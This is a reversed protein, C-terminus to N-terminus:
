IVRIMVVKDNSLFLLIEIFFDRNFLMSVFTGAGNEFLVWRASLGLTDKDGLGSRVSIKILAVKM